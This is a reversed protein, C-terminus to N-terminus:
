KKRAMVIFSAIIWAIMGLGVAIEKIYWIKNMMDQSMGKVPAPTAPTNSDVIPPMQKETNITTVVPAPPTTDEVLEPPLGTVPQGLDSKTAFNSMDETEKTIYGLQSM